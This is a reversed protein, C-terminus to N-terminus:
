KSISGIQIRVLPSLVLLWGGHSKLSKEDNRFSMIDCIQYYTGLHNEIVHLHKFCFSSNELRKSFCSLLSLHPAYLFLCFYPVIPSCLNVLTTKVIILDNIELWLLGVMQLYHWQPTIGHQEGHLSLGRLWPYGDSTGM